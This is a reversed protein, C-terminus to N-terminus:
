SNLAKQISWNNIRWFLTNYNIELEDAWQKINQTKGKYTILRNTRQNNNQEKMTAWRCNEKCYNGNNNIRDISTYDNNKQHELYSELMDDRFNEFKNWSKCVKIGRGGYIKYEIYKPNNCRKKIGNWITYFRTKAMGHKLNNFTEKRVCGCSKTNGSKLHLGIISKENGCDCKCLWITKRWKNSGIKKIVTLRGFKQGTLCFNRSIERKSLLQDKIIEMQTM